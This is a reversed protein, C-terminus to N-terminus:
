LELFLKQILYENMTEIHAQNYGKTQSLYAVYGNRLKDYLMGKYVKSKAACNTSKILTHDNVMLKDLFAFEKSLDKNDNSVKEQLKITNIIFSIFVAAVLFLVIPM